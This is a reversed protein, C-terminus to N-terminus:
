KSDTVKHDLIETDEINARDDACTFNYNLDNIIDSLEVGEDMRICLKVNVHVTVYRSM